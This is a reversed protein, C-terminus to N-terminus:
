HHGSQAAHRLHPLHHLYGGLGTILFLHLVPAASNKYKNWYGSAAQNVSAARNASLAFGRVLKPIDKVLAASSM